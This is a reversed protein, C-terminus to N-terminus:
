VNTLTVVVGRILEEAARIDSLVFPVLSIEWPITAIQLNIAFPLHLEVNMSIMKVNDVQM